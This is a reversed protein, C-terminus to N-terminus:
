AEVAARRGERLREQIKRDLQERLPEIHIRKVVDSAFAFTLIDRAEEDGIGRARLYFVQEDDLQGVTAGHTCKVDDAFIELQPKTDMTAGDSLLLTKNTQKADTKQADKRVFIKGNFVGRAKGDLVSKYLEHSACHPKAHDIVTHNDVLQTHTALSLGNLTCECGEADLVSAVNNRVISGGLSISNSTYNSKSQQYAHIASIHFAEEAEDQFKDHEVVANEGLVFETVANTLYSCEGIHVYSEVLSVQANQGAIILNRPHTVFADTTGTSVFLLHIPDEVVQGKPVYVFVGDQIFATNLATFANADYNAYRSLHSQVLAPHDKLADALSLVKAGAPLSAFSSLSPLFRGNVFVMRTCHLGGFVFPEIDVSSPNAAVHKFQKKGIPAVNTFRWEEDKVTPFGLGAFRAFAARRLRHIESNASGNLTREFSNFHERYWDIPNNM